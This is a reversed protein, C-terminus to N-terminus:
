FWENRMRVRESMRVLVHMYIWFWENRVCGRVCASVRIFQREKKEFSRDDAAFRMLTCASGHLEIALRETYAHM